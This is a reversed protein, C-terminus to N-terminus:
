NVSRYQDFASKLSRNITHEYKSTTRTQQRQRIAWRKLEYTRLREMAIKFNSIVFDPSIQALDRLHLYNLIRYSPSWHTMLFSCTRLKLVQDNLVKYSSCAFISIPSWSQGQDDVTAAQALRCELASTFPSPSLIGSWAYIYFSYCSQGSDDWSATQFTLM